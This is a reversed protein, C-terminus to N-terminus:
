KGEIRCSITGKKKVVKKSVPIERALLGSM